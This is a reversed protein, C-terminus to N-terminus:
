FSSHGYGRDELKEFYINVYLQMLVLIKLHGYNRAM